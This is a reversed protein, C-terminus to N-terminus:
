KGVDIGEEDVVQGRRPRGPSFDTLVEVGLQGAGKLPCPRWGDLWIRRVRM